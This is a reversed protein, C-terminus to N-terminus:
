PTKTELADKLLPAIRRSGAKSLHDDDQYYVSDNSLAHCV